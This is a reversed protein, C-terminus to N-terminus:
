DGKRSSISANKEEKKIENIRDCAAAMKLIESKATEVQQETGDKLWDFFLPCMDVWKPTIDIFQPESM